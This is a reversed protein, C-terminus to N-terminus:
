EKIYNVWLNSFNSAIINNTACVRPKGLNKSTSIAL